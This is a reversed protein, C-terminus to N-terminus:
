FPIDELRIKKRWNSPRIADIWITLSLYRRTFRDHLYWRNSDDPDDDFEPGWPEM